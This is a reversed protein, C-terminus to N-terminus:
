LSWVPEGTFLEQELSAREVGISIGCQRRVCLQMTVAAGIRYRFVCQLEAPFGCEKHRKRGLRPESSSCFSSHHYAGTAITCPDHTSISLVCQGHPSRRLRWGSVEPERGFIGSQVVEASVIPCCMMSLNWQATDIWLAYMWGHRACM